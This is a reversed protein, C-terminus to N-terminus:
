PGSKKRRQVAYRAGLNPGLETILVALVILVCGAIMRGTFVEDFLLFGLFAAFPAEFAFLITARITSTYKLAINSLLHTGLTGLFIMYLLGYASAAGFKPFPGEFLVALVVAVAAAIGTEVITLEIPDITRVFRAIAVINAAFLFACLIILADGWAITLNENLSLLAVGTVCVAIGIVASWGPFKRYVAWLLFPVFVAYSSTIFATKGATTVQIGVTLAVYAGAMISGVVLGARFTRRNISRLRRRFVLALIFFTVSFRIGLLYMPPVELLTLKTAIYDGGWTLACFVIALDAALMKKKGTLSSLFPVLM